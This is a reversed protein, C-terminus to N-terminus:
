ETELLIKLVDASPYKSAFEVNTFIKGTKQYEQKAQKMVGLHNKWLKEDFNNKMISTYMEKGLCHQLEALEHIDHGIYYKGTILKHFKCCSSEVEGIDVGWAKSLNEGFKNWTPEISNDFYEDRGYLWRLGSIPGDNSMFDRGDLGLDKIELSKYGLSKEFLEAIKYAAWLGHFPLSKIENRFDENGDLMPSEIAGIVHGNVDDIFKVIGGIMRIQNDVNRCTGRREHGFKKVSNRLDRFKSPKWDDKSPMEDCINIASELNYFAVYIFVFWEPEYGKKKLLSKIFPYLPDVDRSAILARSFVDFDKHLDTKM